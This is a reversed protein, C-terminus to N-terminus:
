LPLGYLSSRCGSDSGDPPQWERCDERFEDSWQVGGITILIAALAAGAVTKARRTRWWDRLATEIRWERRGTLWEGAWALIAGAGLITILVLAGLWAQAYEAAAAVSAAAAIGLVAAPALIMAAHRALRDTKRWTALVGLGFAALLLLVPKVFIVAVAARIFTSLATGPHDTILRLSLRRMVSDYEPTLYRVNPDEELALLNATTDSWKVGHPNPLQGFGVYISHWTLHTGPADEAFPEDLRSDRYSEVANIGLPTISLYAFVIGVAAWFRGRTGWPRRIVMILAVLVIPLGAHIRISSAFSAAVVTAILVALGHEPWRRALLLLIPALTLIAWASVWYIDAFGIVFLAALVLLWPAALAPWISDFLERFVLPYIFLTIAWMLLTLALVGDEAELDLLRSLIPAYLYIGPDDGAPAPYYREPNYFAGAYGAKNDADSALLPTGEEKFVRLTQELQLSRLNSVPSAQEDAFHNLLLCGLVAAVFGYGLMAKRTSLAKPTM